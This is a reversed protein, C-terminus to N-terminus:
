KESLSAAFEVGMAVWQKLAKKDKWGPPGVYGMSKMPKGTFAMPRAGPLRLAEAYREPGVRVMLDDNVVGGIMNGRVLLCIGGFLKKETVGAVGALETRVLEALKENYAM